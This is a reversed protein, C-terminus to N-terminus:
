PCVILLGDAGEAAAEKSFVISERTDNTGTGIIVPVRGATHQISLAVIRRREEHSITPNEGTTGLVVLGEVGGEIQADILKQFAPEDFENDATFPTVLAPATGRFLM